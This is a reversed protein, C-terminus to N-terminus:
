LLPANNDVPGLIKELFVLNHRDIESLDAQFDAVTAFQPKYWDRYKFNEMVDANQFIYGYEALIENRMDALTETSLITTKESTGDEKYITFAGTIYTSDLKAFETCAYWRNSKLPTLSGNEAAFYTYGPPNVETENPELYGNVDDETPSIKIELRTEDLMRFTLAGKGGLDHENILEGKNDMFAIKQHDYFGERSYVYADRAQTILASFTNTIKDFFGVQAEKYELEALENFIDSQYGGEIEDFIEFYTYYSAPIIYGVAAYEENPIELYTAEKNNLTVHEPFFKFGRIYGQAHEDPFCAHFAFQTDYWGITTDQKVLFSNEYPIIWDYDAPIVQEGTSLKYLGVKNSNKVEVLGEGSEGPMGILDFELPIIQKGSEDVLGMRYNESKLADGNPNEWSGNIVYYYHAPEMNLFWVVSDYTQQLERARAYFHGRSEQIENATQGALINRSFSWFDEYFVEGNWNTIVFTTDQQILTMELTTMRQSTVGVSDATLAVPVRVVISDTLTVIAQPFMLNTTVPSEVDNRLVKLASRLAWSSHDTRFHEAALSDSQQIDAAFRALYHKVKGEADNGKLISCGVLTGLVLLMAIIVLSIRNMTRPNLCYFYM